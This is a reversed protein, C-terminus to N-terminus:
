VKPDLEHIVNKLHSSDIIDRGNTLSPIPEWLSFEQPHKNLMQQRIAPGKIKSSISSM